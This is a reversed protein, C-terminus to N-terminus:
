RGNSRHCPHAHSLPALQAADCTHMIMVQRQNLPTLLQKNYMKIAVQTLSRTCMAAWVCSTTGSGIEKILAFDRLLQYDQRKMTM